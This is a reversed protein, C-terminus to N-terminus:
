RYWEAHSIKEWFKQLSTNVRDKPLDSNSYRALFLPSTLNPNGAREMTFGFKVGHESATSAVAKSCAKKNGFPYSLAKVNVGTWKKLKNLSTKVDNSAEEDPILGLPRHTHGHTGLVGKQALDKIMEKTMYLNQSIESEKFNLELFMDNIVESLQDHDLSYNLFFKLKATELEDYQYAQRAINVDPYNIEIDNERLTNELVRQFDLPPTYARLIHIKHTTTVNKEEIPNTNAFFIAPIGKKKLVPWALEYQEKFGDDFTIVVSKEPQKKEGEIINVLDEISLFDAFKGIQDLRDSFQQPTIGFISPYPEDYNERIYHFNIAILM